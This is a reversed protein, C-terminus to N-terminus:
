KPSSPSILIHHWSSRILRTKNATFEWEPWLYLSWFSSQQWREKDHGATSLPYPFRLHVPPFRQPIQDKRKRIYRHGAHIYIWCMLTFNVAVLVNPFPQKWSSFNSFFQKSSFKWFLLTSHHKYPMLLPSLKHFLGALHLAKGWELGSGNGFMLSKYSFLRKNYQDKQGGVNIFVWSSNSICFYM